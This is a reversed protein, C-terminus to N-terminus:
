LHRALFDALVGALQDPNEEAMHHGSDIRATEVPADVWDRWIEAPDGYLHEMDDHVSWAVLTPCAIRHGRERDARDHAADVSLGARYDELMARVTAPDHLAASVYAFSEAGMAEEKAPDLGYWADPDATIVREAHPSGAFFFWHWWETAFRADAREVAEAMPVGDLVGLARVHGPHDLACRYAVGQGRDHGVVAFGDHGLVQALAVVDAAMARDAYVEHDADPEPKASRGYGRLDPCIVTFGAAALVPAVRHWTTHARPHGHLLVVAPGEGGSRGHLRVGTALEREWEEFGEFFM